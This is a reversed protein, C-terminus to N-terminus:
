TRKRKPLNWAATRELAGPTPNILYEYTLDYSEWSLRNLHKHWERRADDKHNVGWACLDAIQLAPSIRTNLKTLSAVKEMEAIQKKSKKGKRRDDVHGFFPEGQDFYLLYGEVGLRRGWRFVFGLTESACLESVSNPMNRIVERARRFDDFPITMTLVNLGPKAINPLLGGSLTPIVLRGAEALSGEIVDVCDSIYADVKKNSWGKKEDFDKQLANADTTHLPPAEHKAIVQKWASEVPEWEECTGCACALTVRDNDATQAGDFYGKLVVFWWDKPIFSTPSLERLSYCGQTAFEWDDGVGVTGCNSSDASNTGFYLQSVHGM